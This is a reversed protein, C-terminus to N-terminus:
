LMCILSHTGRVVQDEAKLCEIIAVVVFFMGAQKMCLLQTGM